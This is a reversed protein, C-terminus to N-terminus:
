GGAVTLGDVRVTPSDVARRFRLDNAPTLHLFMDKLNGAITIEAVPEALAGNRIMFGAAGRSYDGTLGNVGMGLMENVYLGEVIDAMLETPTLKGAALYANSLGPSGGNSHGNTKLGLQRASRSDLLWTTLVGDEILTSNATPVGEADFPKSRAGRLRRPEDYIYIGPAYIGSASATRSFPPAARSAPAASPAPWHPRDPRRRRPPRVGRADQRHRPPAPQATGGGAGGARRGIAAPDELDSLFTASHYDYDRQM